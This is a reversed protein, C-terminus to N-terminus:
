LVTHLSLVYLVRDLVHDPRHHSSRLVPPLLGGGGDSWDPRFILSTRKFLLGGAKVHSKIIIITGKLSFFVDARKKFKWGIKYM